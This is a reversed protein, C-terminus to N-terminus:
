FPVDHDPISREFDSFADELCESELFEFARHKKDWKGIDTPIWHSYGHPRFEISTIDVSAACGPGCTSSEINLNAREAPRFYYCCKYDADDMIITHCQERM